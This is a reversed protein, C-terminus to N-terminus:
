WRFKYQKRTVEDEEGLITAVMTGEEELVGEARLHTENPDDMRNKSGFEVAAFEQGTWLETFIHFFNFKLYFFFSM